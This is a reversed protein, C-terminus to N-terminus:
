RRRWVPSRRRQGGLDVGAEAKIDSLEERQESTMKGYLARFTVLDMINTSGALDSTELGKFNFTGWIKVKVSKAYGSKTFSQLVMDDGVKIDYIDILPAIEKYFFAYRPGLTTDDVKLFETMTADIDGTSQPMITRLKELAVPTEEADLQFVVVSALRSLRDIRNKLVEDTAIVSGDDVEKKIADLERAVRNKVQMEYFRKSFLIGRKGEPIMEGDVIQFRDFSQVFQGPDTAIYRVYLMRGETSLPALKTDLYELQADPASDFGTWFADGIVDEIIKREEAIKEPDTSIEAANTNEQLMLKAIQRVHEKKQTMMAKDGAKVAERLGMLVRDLESKGFSVGM